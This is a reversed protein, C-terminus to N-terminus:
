TSDWKKNRVPFGLRHYIAWFLELYGLSCSVSLYASFLLYTLKLEDNMVADYIRSFDLSNGYLTKYIM